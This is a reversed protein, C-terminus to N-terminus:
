HRKACMEKTDRSATYTVVAAMSGQIRYMLYLFGYGESDCVLVQDVLCARATSYVAASTQLSIDVANCRAPPPPPTSPKKYFWTIDTGGGLNAVYRDIQFVSLERGKALHSNVSLPRIWRFYLYPANYVAIVGCAAIMATIILAKKHRM